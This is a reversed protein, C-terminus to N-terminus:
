SMSYESMLRRLAVTADFLPPVFGHCRTGLVAFRLTAPTADLFLSWLLALAGTVFPAAISTGSLLTPSGSVGVGRVSDGPAGVGRRAASSSLNSDPMVRGFRDYGVVPIVWPHRTLVSGGLAGSNGAAAVIIVGRRMAYGLASAIEREDAPASVRVMAVSLNILRVGMDVTDIIGQALEAPTTVPVSDPRTEIQHFIPRVVLTCAPCVGPTPSQPNAVLIGAVFTGHVCAVSEAGVGVGVHEVSPPAQRIRAGEFDSGAVAVPGDLLGIHIEPRGSTRSQIDDLKILELPESLAAEPRSGPGIATSVVFSGQLEPAGYRRM